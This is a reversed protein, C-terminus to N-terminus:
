QGPPQGPPAAPKPVGMTRELTFLYYTLATQVKEPVNLFRVGAMKNRGKWDSWVIRGDLALTEDGLQLFLALTAGRPLLVPTVMALGGASLDITVTQDGIPEPGQLVYSVNLAVRLRNTQRREKKQMHRPEAFVMCRPTALYGLVHSEFEVLTDQFVFFASFPTGPLVAFEKQLIQPVTSCIGYEHQGLMISLFERIEGDQEVVLTMPTNPTLQM